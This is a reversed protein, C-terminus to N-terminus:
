KRNNNNNNKNNNDYSLDHMSVFVTLLFSTEMEINPHASYHVNIQDNCTM